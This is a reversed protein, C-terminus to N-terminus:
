GAIEGQNKQRARAITDVKEGNLAQLVADKPGFHKVQGSELVLLYDACSLLPSRHATLIIMAGRDKAKMVAVQLAKEGMPDLHADPEDLVLLAPDGYLARALGIRQVQGGSLPVGGPGIPTDYGQPMSLILQHAGAAMAARHLKEDDPTQALRSITEAITASALGVDQPLYGMHSGLVDEQWQDLRAGDLCVEGFSPKIIGTAIRCLTTKGAGSAGLVALVNGKSMSFSVERLLWRSDATNPERVSVKNAVINEKPVPLSTAPDNQRPQNLLTSLRTWAVRAMMFQKWTGSLQDVPALARSLLISAAIVAGPSISGAIMLWAGLAMIGAQSIQRVTRGTWSSLELWRTAQDACERTERAQRQHHHALNNRMGLGAIVEAQTLAMEIWRQSEINMSQSHQQIKRSMLEGVVTILMIVLMSIVAYWGLAPHLMWLVCFFLVAFPTDFFAILGRSAIYNSVSQLDRIGQGGVNAGSLNAQLSNTLTLPELKQTWWHAAQIMLRSRTWELAGWFVLAVLAMIGLLYLTEESRSSMVRDFVQMMFLPTTLMLLNIGLSLLLAWWLAPRLSIFSQEMLGSVFDGRSPQNVGQM